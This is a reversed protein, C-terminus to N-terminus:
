GEDQVDSEVYDKITVSYIDDEYTVEISDSVTVIDEPSIIFLLKGNKDFVDYNKEFM